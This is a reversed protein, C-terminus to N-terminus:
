KDGFVKKINEIYESLQEETMDPNMKRIFEREQDDSLPKLKVFYGYKTPQCNECNKLICIMDESKSM